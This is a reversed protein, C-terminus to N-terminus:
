ASIRNGRGAPLLLIAGVTTKPTHATNVSFARCVRSRVRLASAAGTIEAINISANKEMNSIFLM